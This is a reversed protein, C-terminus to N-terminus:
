TDHTQGLLELLMEYSQRNVDQLTARIRKLKTDNGTLAAVAAAHPEEIAAATWTSTLDASKKAFTAVFGEVEGLDTDHPTLRCGAFPILQSIAMRHSYIGLQWLEIVEQRAGEITQGGHWLIYGTQLTIGAQKFASIVQPLGGVDFSKHWQSLTQPNLSELGVFVRTLGATKLRCLRETLHSEGVLAAMRMELAFAMVLTRNALEAALAEVRALPGFDDDVFNFIPPLGAETLRTAEHAIEDVVLTLKRPRWRRYAPPLSPTACFTCSGPCGRSTQMNVACGLAAYRVLNPRYAAAWDDPLLVKNTIAGDLIWATIQSEGEGSILTVHHPLHREVEKANTTVHVGGACIAVHPWYAKLRSIIRLADPVDSSTMLSLGVHTPPNDVYATRVDGWFTSTGLGHRREQEYLRRDFLHVDGIGHARLYGALREIGLPEAFEPEDGTCLPRILLVRRM